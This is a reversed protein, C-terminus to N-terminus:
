ADSTFSLLWDTLMGCKFVDISVSLGVTLHLFVFAASCLGADLEDGLHWCWGRKGQRLKYTNQGGVKRPRLAWIPFQFPVEDLIMLRECFEDRAIPVREGGDDVTPGLDAGFCLISGSSRRHSFPNRHCRSNRPRQHILIIFHSLCLPRHYFILAAGPPTEPEMEALRPISSQVRTLFCCSLSM